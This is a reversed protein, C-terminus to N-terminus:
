TEGKVEGVWSTEAKAILRGVHTVSIGAEKALATMTMGGERYAMLLAQPRHNNCAALAQPWTPRTAQRQAKPISPARLSQPEALAQMRQVFADDGLYVQGRLAAQWFNADGAEAQGVLKAYLRIARARSRTDAVPQGLLYGHLGDSDLWAPTPEGGLHARCSSWVWDAPAKVLKAAV